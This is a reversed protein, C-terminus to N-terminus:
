WQKLNKFTGFNPDYKFQCYTIKRHKYFCWCFIIQNVIKTYGTIFHIKFIILLISFAYCNVHLFVVIMTAFTRPSLLLFLYFTLLFSIFILSLLICNLRVTKAFIKLCFMKFWVIYYFINPFYM